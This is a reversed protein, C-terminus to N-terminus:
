GCTWEIIKQVIAEAVESKQMLPLTEIRGDNYLFAVRNTDVEFGADSASVDNAVILDLRKAALKAQAHHILDGTEAAFGIVKHPFNTQTKRESVANLIDATYELQLNLLRSRSSKKIKNIEMKVPRFDAVAAAMVLIDAETTEALVAGLMEAASRVSVLQCGSPPQLNSPASILVVNAGADLAAQAIAYGQKGSSRNTIYRVPDIPEQTGGATVVVKKGRLPGNQALLYRIEGLIEVPEVLRGLGALGSALHGAAPGIFVVGRERLIQINVQTAPHSYMGADMAPAIIIPCRAALAAVTLLNDGIGHAMKAITNATAPAVVLLNTNHGLGVHVIHAEGGWLDTDTYVKRGTVSQFTLPSVFHQAGETLIVDVKSGAQTLRSALEAAKYAAISGTVGLLILKDQIPNTM